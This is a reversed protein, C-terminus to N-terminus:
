PAIRINQATSGSDWLVRVYALTGGQVTGLMAGTAGLYAYRVRDGPKLTLRPKSM